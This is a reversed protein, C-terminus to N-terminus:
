RTLYCLGFIATFRSYYLFVARVQAMILLPYFMVQASNGPILVAIYLVYTVTSIACSEILMTVVTNYLGDSKYETGIANRTNRKHLVLRIVIMLTLFVNLVVSILCFPLPTLHSSTSVGPRLAVYVFVM